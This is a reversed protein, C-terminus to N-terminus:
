EDEAESEDIMKIIDNITPAVKDDDCLEAHKVMLEGYKQGCVGCRSMSKGGNGSRLILLVLLWARKRKYIHYSKFLQHVEHWTREMMSANVASIIDAKRKSSNHLTKM